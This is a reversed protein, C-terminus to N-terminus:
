PIKTMFVPHVNIVETGMLVRYNATCGKSKMNLGLIVGIGHTKGRLVSLDIQVVSGRNFVKKLMPLYLATM